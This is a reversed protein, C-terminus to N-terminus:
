LFAQKAEDLTEFIIPNKGISPAQRFSGSCLRDMAMPVDLSIHDGRHNVLLYEENKYDKIVREPGRIKKGPSVELEGAIRLVQFGSTRQKLEHYTDTVDETEIAKQVIKATDPDLIFSDTEAHVTWPAKRRKLIKILKHYDELRTGLKIARIETPQPETEHM